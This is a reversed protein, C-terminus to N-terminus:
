RLGKMFFACALGFVYEMSAGEEPVRCEWIILGSKLTFMGIKRKSFM